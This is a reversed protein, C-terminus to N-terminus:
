IKVQIHLEKLQKADVESPADTMPCSANQTKPFAICDRISDLGLLLMIMRDLGYAIGGHPPTGYEFAKLLFGFNNWAREKSFGLTEFMKEQLAADHIRISGGGLETGNLVIDYAKARVRSPEKDLLPIDEEMPSTFPHHKAVFRKEEENYELLPFETIWLFNLKNKDILNLAKALYIRLSGLSTMVLEANSDAIFVILDGVECDFKDKIEKITQEDFFKTIPSKIGESTVNMWALGKAGFEKAKEVLEDIQRRSFAKGGNKINIGKVRGGDKVVDSFVKFSSSGVINSIDVMEMGFRTDPKDSGYKEMAQEYTMRAFPIEVKIGTVKEVVYKILKENLSIIDDVDVFSMEIDLQTFEPQRDARLDEDRFCRAIQYYRDMGAVMLIQKFLQPSQPLAYFKGPNLRSPVLYDRAGEPTSKTLVPTEVEVFGNEDLFDRIAKNIKSRFIMNYQMSPRRLDLYRYKLRVIEDVKINDEIPFPPTKAKSLIDLEEGIVEIYGTSIKANVNEAPRRCVKGKVAIVYESRIEDAKKFAEKREPNFVVQVIGSRDRLDVFILGGLDRRTQVWGSLCVEEGEHEKTLDGCYYNRKIKKKM